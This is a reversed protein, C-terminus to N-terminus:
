WSFTVNGLFLHNYVHLVHVETLTLVQAICTITKLM